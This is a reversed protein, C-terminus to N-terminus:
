FCYGIPYIEETKKKKEYCIIKNIWADREPYCKIFYDIFLYSFLSYPGYGAYHNKQFDELLPKVKPILDLRGSLALMYINEWPFYYGKSKNVKIELNIAKEFINIAEDFRGLKVSCLGQLLLMTTNDKIDAVAQKYMSFYKEPDNL